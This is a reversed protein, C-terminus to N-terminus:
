CHLPDPPYKPLVIDVGELPLVDIVAQLMRTWGLTIYDLSSTLVSERVKHAFLERQSLNLIKTVLESAEEPAAALLNKRYLRFMNVASEFAKGAFEWHESARKLCHITMTWLYTVVAQKGSRESPEQDIDMKNEADSDSQPESANGNVASFAHSCTRAFGHELALWASERTPENGYEVAVNFFSDEFQPQVITLWTRTDLASLTLMVNM